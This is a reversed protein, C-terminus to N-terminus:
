MPLTPATAIASLGISDLLSKWHANLSSNNPQQQRLTNLTLVTDWWIGAEAYVFPRRNPEATALRESLTKDPQVREIRGEIITSTSRDLTNGVLSVYWRYAQNSALPAVSADGLEIQMVGPTTPVAIERRFLTRKGDPSRLSVKILKATTQPVYVLLTPREATTFGPHNAPALVQLQQSAAIDGRSAGGRTISPTGRSPPRFRLVSQAVASDVTLTLLATLLAISLAVSKKMM